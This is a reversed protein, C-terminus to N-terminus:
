TMQAQLFRVARRIGARGQRGRWDHVGHPYVFLEVHDGAAQAARYLAETAAVPVADTTGGSLLLLPPLRIPPQRNPGLGTSFGVVAAFPTRGPDPQEAAAATTVALGGGLSWGVVGVRHPNIGPTRRLFAAADLVVRQWRSFVDQHSSGTPRTDPVGCFGRDGPPPTPAFFDIYLTAIGMQPLDGSLRHDFTSFGGCGHLVVVARGARAVKTARCLEARVRTGASTFDARSCTRLHFRPFPKAGAVTATALVVVAITACVTFFASRSRFRRRM